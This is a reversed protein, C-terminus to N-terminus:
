SNFFITNYFLPLFQFHNQMIRDYLFISTTKKWSEFLKLEKDLKFM